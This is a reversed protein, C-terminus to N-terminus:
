KNEGKSPYYDTKASKGSKKNIIIRGFSFKM